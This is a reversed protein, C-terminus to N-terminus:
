LGVHFQEGTSNSGSIVPLYAQFCGSLGVIGTVRQAFAFRNGTIKRAATQAAKEVSWGRIECMLKGAGDRERISYTKMSMMQEREDAVGSM